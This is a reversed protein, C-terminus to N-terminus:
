NTHIQCRELKRSNMGIMGVIRLDYVGNTVIYDLNRTRNRTETQPRNVTMSASYRAGKQKRLSAM